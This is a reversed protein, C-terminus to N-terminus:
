RSRQRWREAVALLVLFALGMWMLVRNWSPPRYTMVLRHEGPAAHVGIYGPAFMVTDVPEGDLEARWNPHYSM